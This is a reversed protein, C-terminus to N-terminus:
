GKLMEDLSENGTSLYTNQKEMTKGGIFLDQYKLIDENIQNYMQGGLLNRTPNTNITM